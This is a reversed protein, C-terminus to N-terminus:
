SDFWFVLRAKYQGSNEIAIMSGIAANLRVHELSPFTYKMLEYPDSEEIKQIADARKRGTYETAEFKLTSLLYNKRVDILENKSLWSPTHWDPNTIYKKNLHYSARNESVLKDAEQALVVRNNYFLHRNESTALEDVVSLYYESEVQLSIKPTRPLGKPSFLPPGFGRVGAMMHFLTYCRGLCLKDSVCFTEDDETSYELYPHIDCGM